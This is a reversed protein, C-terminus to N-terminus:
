GAVNLPKHEKQEPKEETTAAKGEKAVVEKWAARVPNIIKIVNELKEANKQTNADVLEWIIYDYLKLLHQAIEGGEEVNITSMLEYIINEARIINNHAEEINKEEIAKIGARAFKVTADYLMVILKGQSAGEVEKQLYTGYANTAGM